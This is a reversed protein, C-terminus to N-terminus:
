TIIALFPDDSEIVAVYHEVGLERVLNRLEITVNRKSIWVSRQWVKFGWDKVRRRLLDRVKKEVSKIEDHKRQNRPGSCVGKPRGRKRIIDKRSVIRELIGSSSTDEEM